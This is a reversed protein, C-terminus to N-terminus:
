LSGEEVQKPKPRWKPRWSTDKLCSECPEVEIATCEDVCTVCSRETEDEEGDKSDDEDDDTKEVSFCVEVHVTAWLAKKCSPCKIQGENGDSFSGDGNCLNDNFECANYEDIDIYAGCYPCNVTSM